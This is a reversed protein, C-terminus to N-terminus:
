SPLNGPGTSHARADARLAEETLKLDNIDGISGYWHVIKGDRNFHPVGRLRMWHWHGDNHRLRFDVLVPAANHPQSALADLIPQTDSPHVIELWGHGLAYEKTLGTIREWRSSMDINEGRPNMIWLVQPNFEVMNRYHEESQRLEEQVRKRDTIDVCALSVGVVEGAEDIAPHYSLLRTQEPKIGSAPIKMELGTIVEGELARLLLPEFLPFLAPIVEAVPRGIHNEVSISNMDALRRNLNVYRLNRDIFALGVPAGDYVAQLHALRQAPQTDLYSSVATKWSTNEGTGIRIPPAAIINPLEEPPSPLGYLYGQGLDCGLWLLMEAQETTEIGEAVTILDLSQGLGVVTAAIKRSDRRRTMSAVFTRDVKIKDFPMSQLHRLSSYGTGFDDLALRCGMAKFRRAIARAHDVNGVLASETIEIVLREASFRGATLVALIQQPLDPDRLQLASVNLALTLPAPIMHACALARLLIETTLAGIWGDREALPIFDNPMILGLTPHQWRALIEFGAVQGTRLKVLPQFYPVFEGAELARKVDAPSIPARENSAPNTHPEPSDPDKPM